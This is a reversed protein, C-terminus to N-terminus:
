QPLTKAVEVLVENRRLMPPTWPGNYRAYVPESIAEFGAKLIAALLQKSKAEFLEDNALGSFRVAAMLKPEIHRLELGAAPKPPDTMEAPMVFSVEYGAATKKQLVPATMAISEGRENQGSIYGALYGFAANGAQSMSGSMPKTVVAHPAYRRLQFGPHNEVVDYKQIEAM